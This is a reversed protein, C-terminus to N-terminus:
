VTKEECREFIKLLIPGSFYAPLSFACCVFLIVGFTSYQAMFLICLIIGTKILVLLVTKPLQAISIGVAFRFYGKLSNEYYCISPFLFVWFALCFLLIFNLIIRIVDAMAFNMHYLVYFNLALSVIVALMIMWAATAKRFNEKFAHFFTKLIDPEDGQQYRFLVAYMGTASAGITVIPICCILFLLNTAVVYMIKTLIQVLHGDYDFFGKM